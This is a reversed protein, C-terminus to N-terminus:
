NLWHDYVDTETVSKIEERDGVTSARDHTRSGTGTMFVESTAAREYISAGRVYGFSGQHFHPSTHPQHSSSILQTQTSHHDSSSPQFITGSSQPFVFESINASREVYHQRRSPKFPVEKSSQYNIRESRQAQSWLGAESRSFKADEQKVQRTQDSSFLLMQQGAETASDTTYASKLHSSAQAYKKNRFKSKHTSQTQTQVSTYKVVSPHTLIRIIVEWTKPKFLSQYRIDRSIRTYEEVTTSETILSRFIDDTAIVTQWRNKDEKTIENVGEVKPPNDLVEFFVNFKREALRTSERLTDERKSHKVTESKTDFDSKSKIHTEDIMQTQDVETSYNESIERTPQVSYNRISVDWNAQEQSSSVASKVATSEKKSEIAQRSKSQDAERAKMTRETTVTESINTVYFDDINKVMIKPGPILTLKNQTTDETIEKDEENDVYLNDATKTTLKPMYPVLQQQPIIKRNHTNVVDEECIKETSLITTCLDKKTIEPKHMVPVPVASISEAKEVDM